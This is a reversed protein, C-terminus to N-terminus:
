VFLRFKCKWFNWNRISVGVELSKEIKEGIGFFFIDWIKGFYLGM